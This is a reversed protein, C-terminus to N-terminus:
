THGKVFPVGLKAAILKVQYTKGVGTPGILLINNKISGVASAAKQAGSQDLYRIRNFHTCVKTALVAKAEEQRVVYAQLYAELEEPKLNFNIRDEIGGAASGGGVAPALQQPTFVFSARGTKPQPRAPTRTSVKSGDGQPRDEQDSM